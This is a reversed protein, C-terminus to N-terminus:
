KGSLNLWRNRYEGNKDYIDAQKKTDFYRNSRPDNGVGALYAWNGWNSCVDYDILQEEFYAAGFRWDVKLDNILYSAVIQRGRNSMFGTERLELMNANVFDSETQGNIWKNLEDPPEVQHTFESHMQKLGYLSFYKQHHKKFMFRFFDRWLLEFYLWYTSENSGFQSEFKKLCWYIERASICGNALWLSFKSSYDKGILGNRTNKYNLVNGTEEFYDKIRKMGETEGGKFPIATLDTTKPEMLGLNAYSPLQFKDLELSHILKPADFVERVESEKEVKKRFNTFLDPIDKISFPLDNAHYLTSTSFVYSEVNIKWLAQEVKEFLKIENYAVEKKTFLYKANYQQAVKILEEVPNGVRVILGSGFKKLNANLDILSEILFKFRFNGMRNYGYASKKYDSLDFCFVPVIPLNKEIAKMLTENDHLRLDTKFWVITSKMNCSM